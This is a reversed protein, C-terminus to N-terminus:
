PLYHTESPIAKHCRGLYFYLYIGALHQPQPNVFDEMRAPNRDVERFPESERACISISLIPVSYMDWEPSHTKKFAGNDKQEVCHTVDVVAKGGSNVTLHAQEGGM